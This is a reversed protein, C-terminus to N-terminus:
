RGFFRQLQQARQVAANYQAQSVQGSNLMRQIHEMPDGKFRQKLQNLQQLLNNQPIMAQYIPNSMM